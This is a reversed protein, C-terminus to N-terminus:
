PGRRIFGPDLFCLSFSSEVANLCYKCWLAIPLWKACAVELIEILCCIYFMIIGGVGNLRTDVTGAPVEFVNKSALVSKGKLQDSSFAIYQSWWHIPHKGINSHYEPSYQFLLHMYKVNKHYLRLLVSTYWFCQQDIVISNPIAFANQCFKSWRM